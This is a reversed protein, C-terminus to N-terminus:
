HNSAIDSRRAAQILRHTLKRAAISILDFRIVLCQYSRDSAAPQRRRASGASGRTSPRRVIRLAPITVAPAGRIRSGDAEELGMHAIVLVIVCARMMVVCAM